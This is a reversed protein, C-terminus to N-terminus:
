MTTPENQQARAASVSSLKSEASGYFELKVNQQKRKSFILSEIRLLFFERRVVFM